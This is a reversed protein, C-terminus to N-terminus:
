MAVILCLSNSIKFDTNRSIWSYTHMTLKEYHIRNNRNWIEPIAYKLGLAAATNKDNWLIGGSSEQVYTPMSLPAWGKDTLVLNCIFTIWMKRWQYNDNNKSM